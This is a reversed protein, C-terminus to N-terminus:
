RLAEVALGRIIESTQAVTIGIGVMDRLNAEHVESDSAGTADAAVVVEFDLSNADFASARICNPTQVGTIVVRGVGLSRLLRTLETKHFASWRKKILIPEDPQPELGDVLAYGRTGRIFAGGVELFRPRRTIEVDSGDPTHERIVFIVPLSQARFARRLELIRPVISLGGHVEFPAGPLCFDNQMDIILLATRNTMMIAGGDAGGLDSTM